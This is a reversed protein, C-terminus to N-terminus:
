DDTPEILECRLLSAFDALADRMGEVGEGVGDLGDLWWALRAPWFGRVGRVLERHHAPRLKRM